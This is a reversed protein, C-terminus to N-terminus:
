QVKVSEFMATSLRTTDHSTVALGVYVNRAMVVTDVYISAWTVGDSSVATTFVDGSRHVSLWQPARYGVASIQGDSTDATVKRSHTCVKYTGARDIELSAGLNVSNSEISERINFGAKCSFHGYEFDIVYASIECDGTRPQYVFHFGDARNWIDPGGGTITFRGNAYMAGGVPTENGISAGTWPAPLPSRVVATDASVAQVGAIITTAAGTANSGVHLSFIGQPLDTLAYQGDIGVAALRELGAVQAFIQPNAAGTTDAAGILTAFPRLTDVGLNVTDRVDLLCAFLAAAHGDTVEIRYSGPDIGTIEFRGNSDTLADAGYFASKALAPLQTVWDSRRLRVIAGAAPTGDARIACATIGNTTESGGTADAVQMSCRLHGLALMGCVIILAVRSM